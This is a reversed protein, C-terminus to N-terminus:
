RSLYETLDAVEGLHALKDPNVVSSVAQVRGDAIQLAMASLLRGEADLILVGPQGNLEVRRMTTGARRQGQRAWAAITRAVHRAGHIARALAPVKGGGDGHLVVDDVLLRELGAMDGEEVAAFFRDALEDRQERSPEFRPRREEV